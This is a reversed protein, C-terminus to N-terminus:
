TLPCVAWKPPEITAHRHQGLSSIELLGPKDGIYMPAGIKKKAGQQSITSSAVELIAPDEIRAVNWQAGSAPDRRILTLSTGVPRSRDYSRRPPVTPREDEGRYQTSDFSRRSSYHPALMGPRQSYNGANINHINGPNSIPALTGSVPKRVPPAGADRNSSTGPVAKRQLAPGLPQSSFGPPQELYDPERYDPPVVLNADEPLELHLFYLSSQIDEATVVRERPKM